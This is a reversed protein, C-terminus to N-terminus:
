WTFLAGTAGLVRAHDCRCDIAYSSQSQLRFLLVSWDKAFGKVRDRPLRRAIRSALPKSELHIPQIEVMRLVPFVLMRRLPTGPRQNLQRRPSRCPSGREGKRKMTTASTRCRRAKSQSSRRWGITGPREQGTKCYASSVRMRTGAVIVAM